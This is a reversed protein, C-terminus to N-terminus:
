RRRRRSRAWAAALVGVLVALPATAAGPTTTVACGANASDGSKSRAVPSDESEDNSAPSEGLDDSSPTGRSPPPKSGTAATSSDWPDGNDTGSDPIEVNADAGADVPVYPTGKALGQCSFDGTPSGLGDLKRSCHAIATKELDADSQKPTLYLHEAALAGPGGPERFWHVDLRQYRAHTIGGQAEVSELKGVPDVALAYYDNSKATLWAFRHVFTVLQSKLAREDTRTLSAFERDHFNPSEISNPADTEPRNARTTIVGKEFGFGNAAAPQPKGLQYRLVTDLEFRGFSQTTRGADSSIDVDLCFIPRGDQGADAELKRFFAAGRTYRRMKWTAADPGGKTRKYCPGAELVGDRRKYHGAENAVDRELGFSKEVAGFDEIGVVEDASVGETEGQPSCAALALAAGTWRAVKILGCKMLQGWQL